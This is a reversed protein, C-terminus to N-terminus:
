PDNIHSCASLAPCLGYPCSELDVRDDENLNDVAVEETESAQIVADRRTRRGNRGVVKLRLHAFLRKM